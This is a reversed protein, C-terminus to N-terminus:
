VRQNGGTNLSKIVRDHGSLDQMCSVDSWNYKQLLHTIADKQDHGIEFFIMGQPKLWKAGSAALREYFDLGSTGGDLALRPEHERVDSALCDVEASPIYPPNSVIFDFSHAMSEDLAAYLDGCILQVYDAVNNAAANQAAVSLAAASIDVGTMTIQGHVVLSVSICGSGVGIELGRPHPVDAYQALITEVLLETDPRPILVDPTVVFPLSMFERQGLIYAVPMGARRKALLDEFSSLQEATCDTHLNALLQAFPLGCAYALLVNADIDPSNSVDSLFATGERRLAGLTQARM